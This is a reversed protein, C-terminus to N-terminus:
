FQEKKKLVIEDIFRFSDLCYFTSKDICLSGLLSSGSHIHASGITTVPVIRSPDPPEPTPLALAGLELELLDVPGWSIHAYSKAGSHLWAGGDGPLQTVRQARM